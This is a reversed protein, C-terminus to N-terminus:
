YTLRNSKHHFNRYRYFSVNKNLRGGTEANDQRQLVTGWNAQIWAHGIIYLKSLHNNDFYVVLEFIHSDRTIINFVNDFISDNSNYKCACQWIKEQHRWWISYNEANISMQAPFEGTMPSNGECRGTVRLKSTNKKIQSQICLQTFLRSAPWDLRWSAWSSTPTIQLGNQYSDKFM